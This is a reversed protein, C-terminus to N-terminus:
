EEGSRGLRGYAFAKREDGREGGERDSVSWKGCRRWSKGDDTRGRTREDAGRGEAGETRGDRTIVKAVLRIVAAAAAVIHCPPFSSPFHMKTKSDFM